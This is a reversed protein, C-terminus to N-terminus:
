EGDGGESEDRRAALLSGNAGRGLADTAEVRRLLAVLKAFDLGYAAAVDAAQRPLAAGAPTRCLMLRSLERAALATGDARLSAAVSAADGGESQAYRRLTHAMWGPEEAAREAARRLLDDADPQTTTKSM